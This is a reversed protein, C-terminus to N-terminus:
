QRHGRHKDLGHVHGTFPVIPPRKAQAAPTEDFTISVKVEGGLLLTGRGELTVRSMNTDAEVKAEMIKDLGGLADVLVDYRTSM